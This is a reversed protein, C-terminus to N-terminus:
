GRCADPLERVTVATVRAAVRRNDVVGTGAPLLVGTQPGCARLTVRATPAEPQAPLAVERSQDGLQVSLSTATNPLGAVDLTVSMGGEGSPPTAVVDVRRSVAADPDLGAVWRARLPRAPEVLEFAGDPSAAVRRGALQLVPSAPDQVARDGVTPLDLAGGPAVRAASTDQLFLPYPAVGAAPEPPNALRTLSGNYFNLELERGGVRGGRVLTAERGDLAADAWALEDQADGTRAPVGPVDGAAAAFVYVTLAAQVLAAAALAPVPRRWLLVGAAVLVLGALALLDHVGLLGGEGAIREAVSRSAGLVPALFQTEADLLVVLPLTALVALVPLAALAVTRAALAREEVAALAGIWLFPAAYFFYREETREGLFGGQALIATAWVAGVSLAAVLAPWWARRAPAGLVGAFWALGLVAPLVGVGLAMAGVEVVFAVSLDGPADDRTTIGRYPGLVRDLLYDFGGGVVGVALAGLVGLLVLAATVPHARAVDRAAPRTGARRGRLARVAILVLYVAALCGLQTRTFTAAGIALVALLDARPGPTRVAHGIALVAWLFVPYALNETFLVTSLALWPAAVALLGAAVAAWRSALVQRALLWAPVAASAFLLASLVRAARIAEDGGAVAFVPALALSYLRATSRAFPDDVFGAPFTDAYRVAQLKHLTEDLAIFQVDAGVAAALLAVALAGLALVAGPAPRLRVATV